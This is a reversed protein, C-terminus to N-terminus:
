RAPPPDRGQPTGASLAEAEAILNDPFGIGFTSPSHIIGTQVKPAGWFGEWDM